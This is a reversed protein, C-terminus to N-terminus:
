VVSKRDSVVTVSAANENKNELHFQANSSVRQRCCRDGLSVLVRDNSDCAFAIDMFM